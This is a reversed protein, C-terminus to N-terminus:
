KTAFSALAARMQILAQKRSDQAARLDKLMEKTDKVISDLSPLGESLAPNQEAVTKLAAKVKPTQLRDMGSKLKEAAMTEIEGLRQHLTNFASQVREAAFSRAPGPAIVQEDPHLPPATDPIAVLSGMRIKSINKLQPNAKLLADAAQQIAAQLGRGQIRFLRSALDTVSKEGKFLAFRM